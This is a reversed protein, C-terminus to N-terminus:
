KRNNGCGLIKKNKPIENYLNSFIPISLFTIQQWLIELKSHFFSTRQTQSFFHIKFDNCVQLSKERNVKRKRLSSYNKRM